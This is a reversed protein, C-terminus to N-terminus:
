QRGNRLDRVSLHTVRDDGAAQEGRGVGGELLGRLRPAGLVADSHRLEDGRELLLSTDHHSNSLTFPHYKLEVTCASYKKSSPAAAVADVAIAAGDGATAAAVAVVVM